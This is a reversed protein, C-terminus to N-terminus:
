IRGSVLKGLREYDVVIVGNSCMLSDTLKFAEPISGGGFLRKGSGLTIPYIMLWLRDVLDNKLLTQVLTSSGWVHIDPGQGQKLGEVKAAVDGNLFITPQWESSTRTNSAVYKTAIMVNPWYDPHKPWYPEWIEFTKRGLLLDFLSDLQAKLAAALQADHFSSIWGGHAFGGSTDEDPGGPSQIVGDLSM